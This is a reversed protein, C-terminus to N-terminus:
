LQRFVIRTGLLMGALHFPRHWGYKEIVDHYWQAPTYRLIARRHLWGSLHALPPGPIHRLKIYAHLKTFVHHVAVLSLFLVVAGAASTPILLSM